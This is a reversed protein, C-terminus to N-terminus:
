PGIKSALNKVDLLFSSMAADAGSEVLLLSRADCVYALREGVRSTVDLQRLLEAVTYDMGKQETTLNMKSRVSRTTKSGLIGTSAIPVAHHVVYQVSEMLAHASPAQRLRYALKLCQQATNDRLREAEGEVRSGYVIGFYWLRDSVGLCCRTFVRELLEKARELCAFADEWASCNMLHSALVCLSDTWPVIKTSYEDWDDHCTTAHKSVVVTPQITTTFKILAGAMNVLSRKWIRDRDSCVLARQMGDLVFCGDQIWQQASSSSSGTNTSCEERQQLKEVTAMNNAHFYHAVVSAPNQWLKLAKDYLGLNAYIRILSSLAVHNASSNTCSSSSSTSSRGHQAARDVVDQELKHLLGNFRCHRRWARDTEDDVVWTPMYSTQTVQYEPPQQQPGKALRRPWSHCGVRWIRTPVTTQALVSTDNGFHHNDGLCVLINLLVLYGRIKLALMQVISNRQTPTQSQTTAAAATGTGEELVLTQLLIMLTREDITSLGIDVLAEVSKAVLTYHLFWEQEHDRLRRQPAPDDGLQPEVKSERYNGISCHSPTTPQPVAFAWRLLELYTRTM